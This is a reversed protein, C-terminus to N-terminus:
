YATAEGIAWYVARDIEVVDLREGSRPHFTLHLSGTGDEVDLSDVKRVEETPCSCRGECCRQLTDAIAARAPGPDPIDVELDNGRSRVM